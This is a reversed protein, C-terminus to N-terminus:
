VLSPGSPLPLGTLYRRLLDLTAQESWRLVTHRDGPLRLLRAHAVDDAELALWVLGPAAGDHPEPGASGTLSVAVDADFVRRAGSAMERACAESVVGDREITESSVGLLSQKAEATYVVASGRFFASAGPAETLRRAVGGGTVSEACALTRGAAKMERGVVQELEEDGGSYVVDGLRAVVEEAVPRILDGAEGLTPAKATLRVRVEGGGALYAVTPNTSGRFLDDLLEAIRSEAMGVCRIQRSAIAAPGAEAALRPIVDARMMRRMESPVGPLAFLTATGLRVVLGPASGRENEIVEAGNPVDAQRLNSAPMDRGMAEFRRRLAREIEPRRVLPAGAASAVAERTIDDQTPGLGGTVVVADSRGVARSLTEVIRGLNDGVVDHYLVDVGIEALRESIWQANTDAIQGLLLETGVSVIEARV